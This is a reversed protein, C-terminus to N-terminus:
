SGGLWSVKELSDAVEIDVTNIPACTTEACGIHCSDAIGPWGPVLPRYALVETGVVMLHSTGAVEADWRLAQQFVLFTSQFEIEAATSSAVSSKEVTGIDSLLLTWRKM